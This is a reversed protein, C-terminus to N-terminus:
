LTVGLRELVARARRLDSIRLPSARDWDPENGDGEDPDYRYARKAFPRLAEILAEITVDKDADANRNFEPSITALKRM